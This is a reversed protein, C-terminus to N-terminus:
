VRKFCLINNYTLDRKLGYEESIKLTLKYLDRVCPNNYNENPADRLIIRKNNYKLILFGRTVNFCKNEFSSWIYEISEIDTSSMRYEKNILKMELYEKSIICEGDFVLFKCCRILLSTIRISLCLLVMNIIWSILDSFVRESVFVAICILPIEVITATINRLWLKSYRFRM